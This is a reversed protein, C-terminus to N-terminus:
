ATKKPTQPEKSTVRKAPEVKDAIQEMSQGTAISTTCRALIDDDVAPRAEPTTLKRSCGTKAM